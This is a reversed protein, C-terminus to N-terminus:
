SAAQGLYCAGDTIVIYTTVTASLITAVNQAEMKPIKRDQNSITGICYAHVSVKVM